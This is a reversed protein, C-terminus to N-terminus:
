SEIPSEAANIVKLFEQLEPWGVAEPIRSVAEPDGKLRLYGYNQSGDAHLIPHYPVAPGWHNSIWITRTKENWLQIAEPPPVKFAANRRWQLLLDPIMM